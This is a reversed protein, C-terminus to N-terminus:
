EVPSPLPDLGKAARLNLYALALSYKARVESVEAEFLQVTAVSRELATALGERYLESSETSNKRAASVAAGAQRISAQEGALLAAAQRIQVEIDRSRRQVELEAARLTSLREARAAIGEGGDFISWTMTLAAAEDHDRGSFGSENTTRYTGVLDLNPVYRLAPEKAFERAAEVGLLDSRYDFRRDLAEPVVDDPIEASQRTAEELLFGPIALPGSVDAVLLGGLSLYATAVSAQSRSLELEANALDLEARTVDNSSVLGADFRARADELSELAFDRRRVAAERVAEFGLTLLFADAAEYAILRRQQRTDLVSAELEIRAQRYLPFARADFLTWSIRSLSSEANKSQIVVTDGDGLDRLTAHGRRTYTGAVELEPFFFARARRVRAESAERLADSAAVRENRTVALDIAGDLTLPEASAPIAIMIAAFIAAALLGPKTLSM